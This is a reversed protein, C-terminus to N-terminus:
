ILRPVLYVIVYLPIWAVVVFYWYMGNESVDVFRREELPGVFMLVALVTTDLLDTMLYVTHFGMITWM